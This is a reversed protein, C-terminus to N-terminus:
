APGEYTSRRNDFNFPFNWTVGQNRFTTAQEDPDGSASLVLVNDAGFLALDPKRERITVHGRAVVSAAVLEATVHLAGARLELAVIPVPIEDIVISGLTRNSNM